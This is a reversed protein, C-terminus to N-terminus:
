WRVIRTLSYHNRGSAYSLETPTIHVFHPNADDVTRVPQWSTGDWRFLRTHVGTAIPRAGLFVDDIASGGISLILHDPFTKTTTPQGAAIWWLTGDLGALLTGDPAIWLASWSATRGTTELETIEDSPSIALLVRENDAIRRAAAILTGDDHEDALEVDYGTVIVKRWGADYTPIGGRVVLELGGGVIAGSRARSIAHLEGDIMQVPNNDVDMTYVGLGSWANRFLMKGDDGEICDSTAFPADYWIDFYTWGPQSYWCTDGAFIQRNGGPAQHYSAADALLDSDWIYQYGNWAGTRIRYLGFSTAAVLSQRPTTVMHLHVGGIGPLGAVGGDAFYRVYSPSVVVEGAARVAFSSGSLGTTVLHWGGHDAHLEGNSTAVWSGAGDQAYWAIAGGLAPLTVPMWNSGTTSIVTTDTWAYVTGDYSGVGTVGSMAASSWAGAHYRWLDGGVAVYLGLASDATAAVPVANAPWGPALQSWEDTWVAITTTGIAYAPGGDIGAALHYTGAPALDELGNIIMAADGATNNAGVALVRDDRAWLALPRRAGVFIWGFQECDIVDPSCASSCGLRGADLGFDVCTLEPATGDCLEGFAADIVGDGCRGACTSVDFVCLGNCSLEGQYFGFDDCSRGGLADGDCQELSNLADDGCFRLQCASSCDADAADANVGRCTIPRNSEDTGCDCTEGVAFDVIGNGCTEVSACDGSCGDGYAVNGDDCAEGPDLTGNGCGVAICVGIRCTGVAGRVSCTTDDLAGACAALQDTTVCREAACSFGVPCSLAGCRVLDPELCGALTVLLLALLRSSM